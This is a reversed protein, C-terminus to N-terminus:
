NSSFFFSFFIIFSNLFSNLFTLYSDTIEGPRRTTLFSFNRISGLQEVDECLDFGDVQYKKKIVFARGRQTSLFLFPSKHELSFSSSHNECDFTLLNEENLSPFIRRKRIRKKSLLFYLEKSERFSFCLM